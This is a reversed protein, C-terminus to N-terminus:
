AFLEGGDKTERFRKLVIVDHKGRGHTNPNDIVKECTRCYYFLNEDDEKM